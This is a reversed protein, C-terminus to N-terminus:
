LSGPRKVLDNDYGGYYPSPIMVGDSVDCLSFRTLDIDISLRLILVAEYALAELATGCGNFVVIDDSDVPFQSKLRSNLLSATKQKLDSTLAAIM